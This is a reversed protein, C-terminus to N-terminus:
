SIMVLSTYQANYFLCLASSLNLLFYKVLFYIYYKICIYTCRWLDVCNKINLTIQTWMTHLVAIGRVLLLSKEWYLGPILRKWNSPLSEIKSANKKYWNMTANSRGLLYSLMSVAFVFSSHHQFCFSFGLWRRCKCDFIQSTNSYKFSTRPHPSPNTSLKSFSRSSIIRVHLMILCVVVQCATNFSRKAISAM